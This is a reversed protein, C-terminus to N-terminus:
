GRDLPLDVMAVPVRVRPGGDGGTRSDAAAPVARPGAAVPAGEGGTSRLGRCEAPPRPSGARAPVHSKDWGQPTAPTVVLDAWEPFQKRLLRRVLAADLTPIVDQGASM